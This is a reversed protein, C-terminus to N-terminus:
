RLELGRSDGYKKLQIFRMTVNRRQRGADERINVDLEYKMAELSALLHEVMLMVRNFRDVREAHDGYANSHDAVLRFAEVLLREAQRLTKKHAKGVHWKLMDPM